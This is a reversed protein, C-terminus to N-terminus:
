NVPKGRLLTALKAKLEQFEAEFEKDAEPSREDRIGQFYGRILGRRDVVVLRTSHDFQDGADKAKPNRAASVKFQNELLHRVDEEPGTLFLWREPDARFHEAYRKLEAPDDHGPDVTFTVLRLDPQAALDKQLRAMTASVQPCPGTCRTFVFSAVWVKGAFDSQRITTGSRETLTFEGVALEPDPHRDRSPSSSQDAPITCGVASLLLILSLWRRRKGANGYRNMAM